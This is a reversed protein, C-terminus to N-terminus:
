SATMTPTLGLVLKPLTSVVRAASLVWPVLVDSIMMTLM